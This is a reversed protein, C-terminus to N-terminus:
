CDSRVSCFVHICNLTVPNTLIKKCEPCTLIQEEESKTKSDPKTVLAAASDSISSM